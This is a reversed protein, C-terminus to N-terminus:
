LLTEWPINNDFETLTFLLVILIQHLTKKDEKLKERFYIKPQPKTLIMVWVFLSYFTGANCQASISYMTGYPGFSLWYSPLILLCGWLFTFHQSTLVVSGYFLYCLSPFHLNWRSRGVALFTIVIMLNHAQCKLM